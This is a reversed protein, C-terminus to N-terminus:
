SHAATNQLSKSWPPIRLVWLVNIRCTPTSFIMKETWEMETSVCNVVYSTTMQNEFCTESKAWKRIHIPTKDHNVDIHGELCEIFCKKQMNPQWIDNKCTATMRNWKFHLECCILNDNPALLLKWKKFDVYIDPWPSWPPMRVIGCFM